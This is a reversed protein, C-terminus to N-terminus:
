FFNSWLIDIKSKFLFHLCFFTEEAVCGGRM